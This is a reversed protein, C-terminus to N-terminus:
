AVAREDRVHRMARKFFEDSLETEDPFGTSWAAKLFADFRSLPKLSAKRGTLVEWFAALERVLIIKQVDPSRGSASGHLDALDSEVLEILRQVDGRSSVYRGDRLSLFRRRERRRDRLISERFAINLESRLSGPLAITGGSSRELRITLRDVIDELARRHGGRNGGFVLGASTFAAELHFYVALHLDSTWALDANVPPKFTLGIRKRPASLKDIERDIPLRGETVSPSGSSDLHRQRREAHERIFDAAKLYRAAFSRQTSHAHNM